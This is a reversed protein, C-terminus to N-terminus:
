PVVVAVRVRVVVATKATMYPPQEDTRIVLKFSRSLLLLRMTQVRLAPFLSSSLSPRLLRHTPNTSIPTRILIHLSLIILCIANGSERRCGDGM